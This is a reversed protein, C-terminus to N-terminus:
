ENGALEFNGILEKLLSAQSSLEESAAASEESTASNSQVVASIQSIGGSIQSMSCAQDKSAKAIKKLVEETLSVNEVAQKLQEATKDAFDVGEQIAAVSDEILIATNKAAQAAKDALNGVEDAVVSFGKGAEGARAAEVAANLALINTQFAIDEITNIIKKIEKSKGDIMSMADTLQLMQHNSVGIAGVADAALQNAENVHYLNQKIQNEVESVSVSLKEVSGAQETTGQALGQAGSSVQDSGASVQEAAVNIQSLTASIRQVTLRVSDEIIKFDGAFPRTPEPIVFNGDSFMQLVMSIDEVYTQITQLTERMSSALDGLEDRSEYIIDSKLKGQSMRQAAVEIEKVPTLISKRIVFVLIAVIFMMFVTTFFVISRALYGTRDAEESQHISLEKVKESVVLLKATAKEIAPAYESQYINWVIEDNEVTKPNNRLMDIIKKQYQSADALAAGYEEMLAPETRANQNYKEIEETLNKAEAEAQDLFLMMTEDDFSAIAQTLYREESVMYREINNIHETNPVTKEAYLGVIRNMGGINLISVVGLIFVMVAVIGFGLVLKTGVKLNKM